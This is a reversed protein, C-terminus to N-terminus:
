AVPCFIEHKGNWALPDEVPIADLVWGDPAWGIRIACLINQQDRVYFINAFGNTQLLGAEGRPQRRLLTHIAALRSEVKTEGGLEAIIPLDPAIRVLKYKRLTHEPAPAETKSLYRSAFEDWLTAFKVGAHKCFHARVVFPETTAPVVTEAVAQLLPTTPDPQFPMPPLRNTKNPGLM